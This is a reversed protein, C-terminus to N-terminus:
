HGVRQNTRRRTHGVQASKQCPSDHLIYQSNEIIFADSASDVEAKYSQRSLQNHTLKDIQEVDLLYDLVDYVDDNLMEGAVVNAAVDFSENHVQADLVISTRHPSSEYVFPVFANNTISDTEIKTPTQTETQIQTQTEETEEIKEIKTSNSDNTSNSTYEVANVDENITSAEEGTFVNNEHEEEEKEEEEHEHEAGGAGGGGGSPGTM